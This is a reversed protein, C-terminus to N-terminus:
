AVCLNLYSVSLRKLVEGPTQQQGPKPGQENGSMASLGQTEGIRPHSALFMAQEEVNWEDVIQQARLLLEKYSRPPSSKFTSHLRPALLTHLPGSPELLQDLVPILASYHPSYALLDIRPPPLGDM